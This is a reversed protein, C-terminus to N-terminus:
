IGAELGAVNMVPDRLEDHEQKVFGQHEPSISPRQRIPADSGAQGALAQVWPSSYTWEFMKEYADDRVDRWFNLTKVITDSWVNQAQLLTNEQSVPARQERNKEATYAIM